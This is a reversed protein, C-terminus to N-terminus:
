RTLMFRISFGFNADSIPYSTSILPNNMQYDFFLRLNLRSSFVYDASVKLSVTKNGSTPQVEDTEIKRILAKTDKFAIDLRTTLNNKVKSTKNKLKLIVDFDKVVYGIGFVFEDNATEILQVSSMNLTLNRQKRYEFKATLSNKMAMDLGIFPSFNENISVSAIDYGSSPIPNGSLVDSVFGLGDDNTVYSAFSTYAGINYTCQYTHKLTVTKFHKKIWPIRSLGDYSISWNPLLSKLSPFPTKETRKLSRNSYAAFFAPILVDPSNLDYSGVSPDFKKGQLLPKDAMFGTTPYRTGQYRAQLEQAVSSRYEKMQTYARSQYNNKENGISWFSTGIAVHTMRFGGTFTKPMGEYAYQVTKQDTTVYKASLAIKLGPFPEVNAKIDLDTAKTVSAPNIISDNGSLWGREWAREIFGEGPIGFSFDLGPSLVKNVSSQGFFVVDNMFGPLLISNTEKYSVSVRRIMMLFRLSLQGAKQAATLANPDKTKISITLRKIDRSASIEIDNNTKKKYKLRVEKGNEDTATLDFTSSNLNHRINRKEGKKVSITTSFNKPRFKRQTQTTQVSAYRKNIEKLYNSKNYLTELNFQGDVQWNNISSITNGITLDDEVTVGRDWNYTTSYQGSANIWELYPIKNIPLTYSATFMQQYTLPRGMTKLSSLVTDKWMKYEDPFIDKNVPAYKTEDIRCNTATALTFKLNKTLDYRFDFKRDITFDKSFSLLTNDAFSETKEMTGTLDRMLIESYNRALNVSFSLRNPLYNLNFDKIIRFIPKNLKKSNKFPEWPKPTTSFDYNFSAQHDKMVDYKTEPNQNLTENYAYSLSFNAPDYIRPKKGSYDVKVNTLNVSKTIQRTVSKTELDKKEAETELADLADDLLVDEDMPNYKPKEYDQSYSFYVPLKVNAKEPFLKGFEFATSLQLQYKNEMNRDQVNDEIGGFGATEVRGAINFNGFDSFNIALDSVAGWGGKENFESVRLENVWVEVSKESRANNRVGIMIVQVDGLNPNGLITVKNQLNDPDYESYRTYQNIATNGKSKEHNRNNKVKTLLSLPFDIMNSQPWVTEADEESYIGEPTLVLPVEYEYYNSNNDTGIRLFVSTENDRTEPEGIIEEAHAFMQIRGYQRLDFSLNKYVARADGASLNTIKLQMSQENEQRLQPQSPDTERTVGPPLVYNVPKKNSNEEISVASVDLTGNTVPPTDADYLDKTYIRWDGRVLRITGFRLHTTEAFNHMFMRIFRISRFDRISGYRTEYDRIPIKFQYWTVSSKTGNKLEVSAEIKDNIYNKGVELDTRRTSIRYEFYKEYENLTNDGNLDEVDPLTSASTSYNEDNKNSPISNGETGNYRKYRELIGLEQSDYDSGRYHHYNDGAPDNLASFPDDSLRKVADPSLHKKYADLYNKYTPFNFEEETKLGNLGVDQNIRADDDNSFAVVTSQVKPVRGWVTRETVTTDGIASLGNEFYKKGDKLIDESIDGLNIYLDGGQMTGATDNVFPDMMWFEIYEINSTEFNTVDLKRMIGGWRKDPSLLYGNEDINDSDLNYPGRENPYFSLNLVSLYSTEGVIAERNPFIEQELVERTLHNSQIDKNQRIHTPTTSNNRNFVSNDISYWSLLARNKGYEIDNSKKAEPFKSPTSALKWYYPYAIDISTESTEFDDLYAYGKNNEIKRHGPILQAVEANFSINSEQSLNLLPLKNLFTTLWPAKTKYSANVGWITNSLPESGIAMKTVLPMESLHMVTGGISFDKNFAYELHTGVLTKRQLNFLSQNELSVNIDTGSALLSEDLITVTGMIYDVIYDVNETLTRGGATVKVSGRTVNMANLQIESSSSAKYKGAIIFKNKESLEQAVVLTSDYLEQFVYKKAIADNGIVKRLGEGFPELLPFYIRGTSSNITFGEVYDFTGDPHPENRSDLRDFGLARVLLKNKINGESIYNLYMGNSDNRHQIDLRFKESQIRTAGLYYVNKMMLDWMPIDPNQSSSKLLKLILAQPPEIGDTSFEGVQYTKGGYTYEFAVALVEDANLTNQLSIYGLQANFTYESADLKRASEIKEYDEGGIMGNYGDLASNTTQIDRVSTNNAFESYLSNTRNDPLSASVAWSSNHIRNSEALDMFAVINRAQEYNGRKNTIWVEVRNITVGSSILPLQKMSKEYNDRFFHALFFHRNEDYEDARVEFDKLQTGGKSSVNQSESQQQSVVATINLKGFQLETKIGFLASSGKILSGQVPMSVNGAELKKIIEDEKGSYALKLMQKDFDFTSETNYNLNFNIKEGVKGNVSLQIDEDFDFTTTKRLKESLAPNDIKNYLLGFTIEASGQTKLQVGGPGFIKDAPGIDFKIDTLKFKSDYSELKASNKAKWFQQMEQQLTYDKYEEETLSFPTSIEIDGIKTRVIYNGTSLDYEIETKVNEPDKLDIPNQETLDHYDEKQLDKVQFDPSPVNETENEEKGQKKQTTQGIAEISVILSFISVIIVIKRLNYM